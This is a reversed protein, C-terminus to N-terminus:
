LGFFTPVGPRYKQSDSGVAKNFQEEAQDLEKDQATDMKKVQESIKLDPWEFKYDDPLTVYAVKFDVDKIINGKFQNQRTAGMRNHTRVNAVPVKYIKELYNKVDGQSMESSVIFQIKNAPHSEHEPKVLKM